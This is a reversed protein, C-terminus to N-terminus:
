LVEVFIGGVGFMLLPGFIPYRNSGLIVEEGKPALKQVVIGEIVVNENYKKANEVVLQFGEVVEEPTKLNVLVGNADSKHLIQPSSIKLVVPFGIDAAAKAAEEASTALATPMTRFGYANLIKYGDMEGISTRGDDLYQQIIDRARQKDHTLKFQSLHQRNLWKSYKNLAGLSRAANEPFKFCPISHQQLYQVGESVDFIGMFCCVVPKHSSCSIKVIAKATGLANTMSQPTLIVLCADVGEDKM